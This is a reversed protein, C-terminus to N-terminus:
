TLLLRWYKWAELYEELDHPHVRVCIGIRCYLQFIVEKILRSEELPDHHLFKYTALLTELNLDDPSSCFAYTFDYSIPGVMPSPDIVGVLENHNFVFNHVGTDGHLLYKEQVGSIEEILSKVMQYDELPLISGLNSRAGEVGRENFERWSDRLHGLRGWGETLHSIQYHNLLDKVIHTMWKIKSGRNFHTIGSIFSYVLFTNTPDTYILKSLLASRAYIQHIQSAWSISLEDDIKLVYQPVNNVSLLYVYGETTGSMKKYIQTNNDIIGDERLSNVINLIDREIPM